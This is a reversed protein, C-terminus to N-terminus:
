LIINSSKPRITNDGVYGKTVKGGNDNLFTANPLQARNQAYKLRYGVSYILGLDVNQERATSDATLSKFLNETKNVIESLDTNQKYPQIANSIKPSSLSAQAPKINFAVFKTKQLDKLSFM